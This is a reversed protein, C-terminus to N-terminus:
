SAILREITNLLWLADDMRLSEKDNETWLTSPKKGIISAIEVRIPRSNMGDIAQYVANRSVGLTQTLEKVSVGNAKLQELISNAM